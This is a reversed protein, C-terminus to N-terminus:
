GNQIVIIVNGRRKTVLKLNEKKVNGAFMLRITVNEPLKTEEVYSTRVMQVRNSCDAVLNYVYDFHQFRKSKYFFTNEKKGSFTFFNLITITIM